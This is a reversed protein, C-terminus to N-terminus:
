HKADEKSYKYRSLLEVVYDSDFNAGQPMEPHSEFYALVNAYKAKAKPSSARDRCGRYRAKLQDRKERAHIDPKLMILGDLDKWMGDFLDFRTSKQADLAAKLIDPGYVIRVHDAIKSEIRYSNILAPGIIDSKNWYAEGLEIGGRLAFGQDLAQAVIWSIHVNVCLFALIFDAALIERPLAVSIVISDSSTHAIPRYSADQLHSPLTGPEGYWGYRVGKEGLSSLFPHNKIALFRQIAEDSKRSFEDFVFHSFGLLDLYCVIATGWFEPPCGM